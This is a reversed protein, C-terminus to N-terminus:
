LFFGFLLFQCERTFLCYLGTHLHLFRHGCRNCLVYDDVIENPVEERLEFHALGHIDEVGLPM